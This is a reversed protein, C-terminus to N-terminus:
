GGRRTTRPGCPTKPFLTLAGLGFYGRTPGFRLFDRLSEGPVLNHPPGGTPVIMVVASDDTARGDSVFLSFHVGDGGTSAFAVANAPSCFDGGHGPRRHLGLGVGPLGRDYEQEVTAAVEADVERLRDPLPSDVIVPRGRGDPTRITM